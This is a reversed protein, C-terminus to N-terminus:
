YTAVHLQNPDTRIINVNTFASVAFKKCISVSIWIFFLMTGQGRPPRMLTVCLLLITFTLTIDNHIIKDKYLSKNSVM